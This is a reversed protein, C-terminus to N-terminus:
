PIYRPEDENSLDIRGKDDPALSAIVNQLMAIKYDANDGSGMIVTFRDGYTFRISGINSIDLARVQASLGVNHIAGLIDILYQLKTQQDEEVIIELGEAIAVPDIGNIAIKESASTQDTKELVRAKQDVIWFDGKYSLVAIPQSESVTIVVQDPIIKEIVVDNLYPLNLGIKEAAAKTDVFLLNDGREIGSVSMIQEATYRKEGIVEIISIRFFVSIGFILIIVILLVAIPTYVVAGRRRRKTNKEEVM